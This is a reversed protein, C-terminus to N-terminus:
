VSAGLRFSEGPGLPCMRVVMNMIDPVAGDITLEVPRHSRARGRTGVGAAESSWGSQLWVGYPVFTSYGRVAPKRRANGTNIPSLSVTKVYRAVLQQTDVVLVIQPRPECANRQRDVRAPDLWFFVKSNIVHYWDEPSMGIVCRALAQPFMPKQDRVHTGNPLATHVTRHRREFPARKEGRVGALDLLASTSLLGHRQISPWNSAEALHFIQAPLTM